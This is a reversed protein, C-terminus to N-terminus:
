LGHEKRYRMLDSVASDLLGTYDQLGSCIVVEEMLAVHEPTFVEFFDALRFGSKDGDPAYTKARPDWPCLGFAYEGNDCYYFSATGQSKNHEYKGLHNERRVARARALISDIKESM